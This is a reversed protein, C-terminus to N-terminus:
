RLLEITRSLMRRSTDLVNLNAQYSRQAQRMDVAEILSNVNTTKIYGKDDAAPHNPEYKKGFESRDPVIKELRVLTANLERDFENRFVPIRRRYPDGGPSRALSDSNAVNEALVKMRASQARLGSASIMMSKNLDM